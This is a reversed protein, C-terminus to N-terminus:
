RIARLVKDALDTRDARQLLSAALLCADDETLEVEQWVPGRLMMRVIVGGVGSATAVRGQERREPRWDRFVPPYPVACQKGRRM